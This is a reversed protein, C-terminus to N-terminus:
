RFVDELVMLTLLLPAKELPRHVVIKLVYEEVAFM